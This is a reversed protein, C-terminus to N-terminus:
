AQLREPRQSCYFNSWCIAIAIAMSGILGSGTVLVDEGILPFSLATHTANGFPDMIAAWEDPIRHDLPIVNTAPIRVFEAFSTLISVVGWQTRVAMSRAAVATAATAAHLIGKVPLGTASISIKSALVWRKLIAWINM